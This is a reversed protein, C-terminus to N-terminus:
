IQHTRPVFIFYKELNWDSIFQMTERSKAFAANGHYILFEDNGFVVKMHDILDAM